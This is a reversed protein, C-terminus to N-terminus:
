VLECNVTCAVENSLGFCYFNVQRFMDNCGPDLIMQLDLLDDGQTCSQGLMTIQLHPSHAPTTHSRPSIKENALTM